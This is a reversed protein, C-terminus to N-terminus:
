VEEVALIKEKVSYVRVATNRGKAQLPELETAEFLGTVKNLTSQSILIEGGKAASCLHAATNVTDGIVSYSMTQTSGIYGAVVKGTNIGIGVDIIPRDLNLSERNFDQLVKLMDIAARVARAPDDAHMLPSGWIVMMGDGIFKDVTGEHQFTVNVFREYYENLLKLLETADSFESLSSFGRIDAFLVTANTEMGGKEIKLQGSVVLDAVNPSLLRRFREKLALEEAIKEEVKKRQIVAYQAHSAIILFLCFVILTMAHENLDIGGIIPLLPRKGSNLFSMTWSLVCYILTLICSLFIVHDCFPSRIKPSKM